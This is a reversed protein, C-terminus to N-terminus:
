FAATLYVCPRHLIKCTWKDIAGSQRARLICGFGYLVLAHVQARIAAYGHKFKCQKSFSCWSKSAHEWCKDGNKMKKGGFLTLWPPRLLLFWALLSGQIYPLFSALPSPCSLNRGSDSHHWNASCEKWNGSPRKWGALKKEGSEKKGYAM